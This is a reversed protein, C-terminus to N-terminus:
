DKANTREIVLVDLWRQADRRVREDPHHEALWALASSDRGRVAARTAQFRVCEADGSRACIEALAARIAPDADDRLVDVYRALVRRVLGLPMEGASESQLLHIMGRDDGNIAALMGQTAAEFAHARLALEVRTREFSLAYPRSLPALARLSALASAADGGCRAVREAELFRAVEPAAHAREFTLSAELAPDLCREPSLFRPGCALWASPADGRPRARFTTYLPEVLAVSWLKALQVCAESDRRVVAARADYRAIGLRLALGDRMMEREVAFDTDDFYLPTRGDVFSRLRGQSLFGIPASSPYDTLVAARDPLDRLVNPADIPFASRLLGLRLVPGRHTQAFWATAILVSLTGAALLPAPLRSRLGAFHRALADVGRAAWPAGLLAAEALFRNATSLLALGLLLLLSERLFLSRAVLMGGLGLALLLWAALMSPAASPDLLPWTPRAMEQVFRPADGAAHAGIFHSIQTGYASSLLAATLQLLTLGDVRLTSRDVPGFRAVQILFILPALVFSGHLQAWLVVWLALAVGVAARRPAEARAYARTALLYFPLAAFLALQPRMSVRTQLVSLVLASTLARWLLPAEEAYARVLCLVGYAAASALLVGLLSLVVFGGFRYAGYSLVSWLWEAAVARDTFDVFATPEPVVRSGAALVARGLSLHFFNDAEDIPRAALAAAYAVVGITFTVELRTSRAM